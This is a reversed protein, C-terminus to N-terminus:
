RAAPRRRKGRTLAQRRQNIISPVQRRVARLISLMHCCISELRMQQLLPFCVGSVEVVRSRPPLLVVFRVSPFIQGLSLGVLEVGGQSLRALAMVKLTEVEMVMAVPGGPWVSRWSRHRIRGVAPLSPVYGVCGGNEPERWLFLVESIM